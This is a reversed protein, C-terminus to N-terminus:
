KVSVMKLTKSFSQNEGSAIIQYFYTGSALNTGNFTVTQYGAQQSSNLISAVQRGTLDFLVISVKSDFPLDYNIKTTPNFPNPYNQSISFQTPVGIIVENSLNYYKYNGNNDIQKLRYSYTGSTVNRDSYTYSHSVSSTGNGYVFGVKLWVSNTTGVFAREVDFGSNNIETNTVWSLKVERGTLTSTFSALEVPLPGDNAIAFPSFSTM